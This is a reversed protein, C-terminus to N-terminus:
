NGVWALQDTFRPRVVATEAFEYEGLGVSFRPRWTQRAEVVILQEGAALTPLRNVIGDLDTREAMDQVTKSWVLTNTTTGSGNDTAGVVSVRFARDGKAHSLFSYVQLLGELDREDVEESRSIMDAVTYTTRKVLTLSKYADWFVMPAIIAWALFPFVLVAEVSLSGDRARLFKSLINFM